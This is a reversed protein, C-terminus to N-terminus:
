KAHDRLYSCDVFKKDKDTHINWECEQCFCSGIKPSSDTKYLLVYKCRTLSIGHNSEYHIREFDIYRETITKLEQKQVPKCFEPNSLLKRMQELTPM